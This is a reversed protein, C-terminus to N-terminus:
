SRALRAPPSVLGRRIGVVIAEAQSTVNLKALLGKIHFRATHISLHLHAAMGKANLGKVLLDLIELERPTLGSPTWRADTESLPEPERTLRVLEPLSVDSPVLTVNECTKQLNRMQLTQNDAIFAITTDPAAQSMQELEEFDFDLAVTVVDAHQRGLQSRAARYTRAVGLCQVGDISDLAAATAEALARRSECLIFRSQTHSLTEM